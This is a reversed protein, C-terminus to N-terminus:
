HNENSAMDNIIKKHGFYRRSINHYQMAAWNMEAEDLGMNKM